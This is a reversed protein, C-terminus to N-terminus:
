PHHTISMHQTDAHTQERLRVMWNNEFKVLVLTDGYEEIRVILNPIRIKRLRTTVLGDTINSRTQGVKYLNQGRKKKFNLLKILVM